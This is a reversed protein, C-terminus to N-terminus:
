EACKPDRNEYDIKVKCDLVTSKTVFKEYLDSGEVMYRGFSVASMKETIDNVEKLDSEYEDANTPDLNAATKFSEKAGDLEGLNRQARGLTQRLYGLEPQLKIANECHGIARYTQGLDILIQATMDHVRTKTLTDALPHEIVQAFKNLADSANGINIAELALHELDTPSKNFQQTEDESDSSSLDGFINPKLHTATKKYSFNVNM